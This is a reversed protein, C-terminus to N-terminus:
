MKSRELTFLTWKIMNGVGVGLILFLIPLFIPGWLVGFAKLSPSYVVGITGFYASFVFPLFSYPKKGGGADKYGDWIAFLYVCPYFLLYQFDTINIATHIDGHFSAVIASNMNSKINILFELFILVIAKITKGNLFQAFGPFAVSWLLVEIENTKAMDDSRAKHLLM